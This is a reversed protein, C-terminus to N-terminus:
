MGKLIRQNVRAIFDTLFSESIIAGAAVTHGGVESQPEVEKVVEHLIRSLDIQLDQSRSMRMSVKIKGSLTQTYGLLPKPNIDKRSSLM